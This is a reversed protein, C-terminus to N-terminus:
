VTIVVAQILVNSPKHHWIDKNGSSVPQHRILLSIVLRMDYDREASVRVPCAIVHLWNGIVFLQITLVGNGFLNKTSCVYFGSDSRRVPFINLRSVKGRDTNSESLSKRFVCLGLVCGSDFYMRVRFRTKKALNRKREFVM